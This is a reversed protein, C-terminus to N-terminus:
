NGIPFGPLVLADPDRELIDKQQELFSLRQYSRQEYMDHLHAVQDDSLVSPALELTLREKEHTQALLQEAYEISGMEATIEPAVYNRRVRELVDVMRNRQSESMELEELRLSADMEMVRSYSRLKEELALFESMNDAGVIEGLKSRREFEDVSEASKHGDATTIESEVVTVYAMYDVVAAQQQESLELRDFLYRYKDKLVAQADEQYERLVEPSVGSWDFGQDEWDIVIEPISAGPSTKASPDDAAPEASDATPKSGTQVQGGLQDQGRRTDDPWSLFLGTALLLSVTVLVATKSHRM